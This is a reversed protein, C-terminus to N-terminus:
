DKFEYMFMTVEASNSFFEWRFLFNEKKIEFFIQTLYINMTLNIRPHQQVTAGIFVSKKNKVHM